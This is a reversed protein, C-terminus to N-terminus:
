QFFFFVRLSLILKYHCKHLDQETAKLIKWKKLFTKLEGNKIAIKQEVERAFKLHQIFAALQLLTGRARCVYIHYRAILLAQSVLM